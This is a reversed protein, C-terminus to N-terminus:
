LVNLTTYCPSSLQEKAVAYDFVADKQSIYLAAFVSLLMISVRCDGAAPQRLQGNWM